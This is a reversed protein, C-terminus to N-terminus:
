GWNIIGDHDIDDILTDPLPAEIDAVAGEARAIRDEALRVYDPNLEIGIFNRGARKAVVGTTGSGTFPDLVTDGRRTTALICPEILDEPYTAFHAGKYPQVKMTWVSRKNRMGGPLCTKNNETGLLQYKEINNKNVNFKKKGWSTKKRAHEEAYIAPEAIAMRDYYYVPQKSLLFIYEHAKTCRNRVSEPVPNPKDWIIDQRLYWGDQRLAFALMWPIGIVDKPKIVDEGMGRMTKSAYTDGIIIWLTGDDTLVDRVGRFVGVLKAIYDSIEAEIGIQDPSNYNRLQFYPPSTVCTQVSRPDLKALEVRCDGTIM